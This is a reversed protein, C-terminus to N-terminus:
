CLQPPGERPPVAATAYLKRKEHDREPKKRAQPYGTESQSWERPSSSWRLRIHHEDRNVRQAGIM